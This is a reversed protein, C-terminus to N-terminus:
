HVGAKTDRKSVLSEFYAKPTFHFVGAILNSPFSACQANYVRVAANYADCGTQLDGELKKLAALSEQFDPTALDIVQRLARSMAASAQAQAAIDLPSTYVAANRVQLLGELTEENLYAKMATAASPILDFRRKLLRAIESRADDVSARTRILANLTVIGWVLLCFAILLLSYYMNM